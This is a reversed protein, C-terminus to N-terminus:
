LMTLSGGKVPLDSRAVQKGMNAGSLMTLWQQLTNASGELSQAETGQGESFESGTKVLDREHAVHDTSFGRNAWGSGASRCARTFVLYLVYM